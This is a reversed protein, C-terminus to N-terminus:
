NFIELNHTILESLASSLRSMMELDHQEIGGMKFFLPCFIKALNFSTMKNQDQLNSIFALHTLTIQLLEQRDKSLNQIAAAYSQRRTDKTGEPLILYQQIEELLPTELRNFLGKFISAADHINDFPGRFFVGVHLAESTIAAKHSFCRDLKEFCAKVKAANGPVRYLGETKPNSDKQLYGILGKAVHTIEPITWIPIETITQPPPASEIRRNPMVVFGIVQIFVTTGIALPNRWLTVLSFAALGVAARTVNKEEM